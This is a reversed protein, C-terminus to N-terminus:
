VGLALIVVSNYNKLMVGWRQYYTMYLINFFTKSLHKENEVIEVSEGCMKVNPVANTLLNYCLLNSKILCPEIRKPM